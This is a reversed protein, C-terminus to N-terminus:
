DNLDRVQVKALESGDPAYVVRVFPGQGEFNRDSRWRAIRRGVATALALAVPEALRDRTWLLVDFSPVDHTEVLSDELAPEFGQERIAEFLEERIARPLRVPGAISITPM